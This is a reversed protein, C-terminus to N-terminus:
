NKVSQSDIILQDLKSAIEEGFFDVIMDWNECWEADIDNLLEICENIFKEKSM